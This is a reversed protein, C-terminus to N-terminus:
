KDNCIYHINSSKGFLIQSFVFCFSPFVFVFFSMAKRRHRKTPHGTPSSGVVNLVVIERPHAEIMNIKVVNVFKRITRRYVILLCRFKKCLYCNEKSYFFERSNFHHLPLFYDYIRTEKTIDIERNGFKYLITFHYVM